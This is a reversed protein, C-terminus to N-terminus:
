STQRLNRFTFLAASFQQQTKSSWDLYGYGLQVGGLKWEPMGFSVTKWGRELYDGGERAWRYM